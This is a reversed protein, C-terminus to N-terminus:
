PLYLVSESATSQRRGDAAARAMTVRAVPAPKATPPLGRDMTPLYLESEGSGHGPLYLTSRASTRARKAAKVFAALSASRPPGDLVVATPPHSDPGLGNPQAPNFGGSRLKAQAARVKHRHFLYAFTAVVLALPGLIFYITVASSGNDDSSNFRYRSFIHDNIDNDLISDPNIASVFSNPPNDTNRNTCSQPMAAERFRSPGLGVERTRTVGVKPTFAPNSMSPPPFGIQLEYRKNLTYYGSGKGMVQITLQGPVTSNSKVGKM